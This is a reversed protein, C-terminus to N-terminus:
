DERSFHPVRNPHNANHFREAVGSSDFPGFRDAPLEISWMDAQKNKIQFWSDTRVYYIYWQQNM